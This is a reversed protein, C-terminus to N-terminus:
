FLSFLPQCSGFLHIPRPPSGRFIIPGGCRKCSYVDNGDVSGSSSPRPLRHHDTPRARVIHKEVARVLAKKIQKKLWKEDAISEKRATRPVRYPLVLPAKNRASSKTYRLKVSLSRRDPSINTLVLFSLSQGPVHLVSICDKKSLSSWNRSRILDKELMPSSTAGPALKIPHLKDLYLTVARSCSNRIRVLATRSWM